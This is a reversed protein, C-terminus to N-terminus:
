KIKFIYIILKQFWNLPKEKTEHNIYESVMSSDPAPQKIEIDSRETVMKKYSEHWKQISEKEIQITTTGSSITVQEDDVPIRETKTVTKNYTTRKKRRFLDGSQNKRQRLDLKYQHIMETIDIVMKISPYQGTWTMGNKSHTIIGTKKLMSLVQRGCRHMEIIERCRKTKPNDEIEEKLEVLMNMYKGITKPNVGKRKM